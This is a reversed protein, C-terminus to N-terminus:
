EAYKYERPRVKARTLNDLGRAAAYLILLSGIWLGGIVLVSGFAEDAPPAVLEAGEPEPEPEAEAQPEAEAEAEPEPEPAAPLEGEEEGTEPHWQSFPAKGPAHTLTFVVENNFAQTPGDRAVRLPLTGEAVATPFAEERDRLAAQLAQQFSAESVGHQKLFGETFGEFLACFERHLAEQEFTYGDEPPTAFPGRPLDWSGSGLAWLVSGLALSTANSSNRPPSLLVSKRSCTNMM